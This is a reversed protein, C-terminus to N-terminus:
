SDTPAPVFAPDLAILGSAVRDGHGSSDFVLAMLPSSAPIEFALDETATAASAIDDGLTGLDAAPASRGDAVYVRLDDDDLRVPELAGNTVELEITVRRTGEAGAVPGEDDVGAVQLSLNGLAVLDGLVYPIANVDAPLAPEPTFSGDDAVTSPPATGGAASGGDDSCGAGLAVLLVLAGTLRLFATM